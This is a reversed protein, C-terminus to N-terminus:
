ITLNYIAIDIDKNIACILEPVTVLNEMNRIFGKIEFKLIKGYFDETILDLIHLELTTYKSNFYLTNQGYSMVFKKIEGNFDLLGYYVGYDLKTNSNISINATPFGISKGNKQGHIVEGELVLPLTYKIRGNREDKGDKLKYAPLYVKKIHDFLLSNKFTNGIQGLSTYGQDYLECYELDRDFIYIWIDHYTWDILPNVLLVQPWDSDTKQILSTKKGYPDTSRIGTFVHTIQYDNVLAKITDKMDHTKIINTLGLSEIFELMEPFEDSKEIYIIPVMSIDIFARKILDLLVISDKGGNFFIATKYEKFSKIIEIIKIIKILSDM